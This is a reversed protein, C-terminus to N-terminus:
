MASPAVNLFYFTSRRPRTSKSKGNKLKGCGIEVLVWALGVGIGAMYMIFVTGVKSKFDLPTEKEKHKTQHLAHALRVGQNRLRLAVSKQLFEFTGSEVLIKSNRKIMNTAFILGTVQFGAITRPFHQGPDEIKYLDKFKGV